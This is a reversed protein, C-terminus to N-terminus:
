RRVVQVQSMVKIGTRSGLPRFDGTALNAEIAANGVKDALVASLVFTVGGQDPMGVWAKAIWTGNDLVKIPGPQPFDGGAEVFIWLKKDKPIHSATGQVGVERSIKHGSTPSTIMVNPHPLFKELIAPILVQTVFATIVAGSIASIVVIRVQTGIKRVPKNM